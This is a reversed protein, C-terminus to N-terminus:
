KLVSLENALKGGLKTKKENTNKKVMRWERLYKPIWRQKLKKERRIPQKKPRPEFRECFNGYLSWIKNWTVLRYKKSTNSDIYRTNLVNKLSTDFYENGHVGM